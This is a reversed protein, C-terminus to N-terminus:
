STPITATVQIALGQDTTVVQPRLTKLAQVAQAQSLGPLEVSPIEVQTTGYDTPITVPPWTATWGPPFLHPTLSPVLGSLISGVDQSSSGGIPIPPLVISIGPATSAAAAQRQHLWYAALLGVGLGILWKM